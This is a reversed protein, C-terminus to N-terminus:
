EDLTDDFISAPEVLWRYTCMEETSELNLTDVVIRFSRLFLNGDGGSKYKTVFKGVGGDVALINNIDWLVYKIGSVSYSGLIVHDNM